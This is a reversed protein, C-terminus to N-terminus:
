FKELILIDKNWEPCVFRGMVKDYMHESIGAYTHVYDPLNKIQLKAPVGQRYKFNVVVDGPRLIATKIGSLSTEIVKRIGFSDRTGHVRIIDGPQILEKAMKYRRSKLRQAALEAKGRNRAKQKRRKELTKFKEIMTNGIESEISRADYGESRIYDRTAEYIALAANFDIASKPKLVFNIVDRAAVNSPSRTFEYNGNVNAWIYWDSEIGTRCYAM